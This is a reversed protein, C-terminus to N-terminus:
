MCNNYYDAWMENWHENCEKWCDPCLTAYNSEKDSYQTNMHDRWADNRDCPGCWGECKLTPLQVKDKPIFVKGDRTSAMMHGGVDIAYVREGKSFVLHRGSCITRVYFDETLVVPISPQSNKM